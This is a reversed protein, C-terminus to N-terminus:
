LLLASCLADHVLKDGSSWSQRPKSEEEAHVSVVARVFYLWM